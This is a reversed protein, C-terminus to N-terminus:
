SISSYPSKTTNPPFHGRSLPQIHHTLPQSLSAQRWRRKRRRRRRRRRRGRRRRRFRGKLHNV